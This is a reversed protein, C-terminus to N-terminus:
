LARGIALGAILAGVGLLGSAALNTTALLWAGDEAMRWSELVLTSFTTYSGVLGIMLPGRLEPSLAAREITLAFLIGIILAGSLNVVMTGLPFSRGVRDAVWGDLAYRAIAGVFGGIGIYVIHV